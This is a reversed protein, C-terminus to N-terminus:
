IIFHLVEAHDSSQEIVALMPHKELESWTGVAEIRGDSM